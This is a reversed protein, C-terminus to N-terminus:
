QMFGWVIGCGLLAASLAVAIGKWWERGIAREQAARVRNCAAVIPIPRSFLRHFYEIESATQYPM